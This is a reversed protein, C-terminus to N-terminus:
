IMRENPWMKVTPKVSMKVMPIKYPTFRTLVFCTAQCVSVKRTGLLGKLHWLGMSDHVWQSEISKIKYIHVGNIDGPINYVWDPEVKKFLYIAFM